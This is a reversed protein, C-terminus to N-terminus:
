FDDWNNLLIKDQFHIYDFVKKIVLFISFNRAQPRYRIVQCSLQRQIYEDRDIIKAINDFDNENSLDCEIALKIDPFYLDIKIEGIPFLFRHEINKFVKEIQKLTFHSVNKANNVKIDLSKLLQILSPDEIEKEISNILSQLGNKNLYMDELSYRSDFANNPSLAIEKLKKKDKPYVFQSLISETDNLELSQCVDNASVWISLYKDVLGNIQKTNKSM